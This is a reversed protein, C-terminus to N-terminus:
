QNLSRKYGLRNYTRISLFLIVLGAVVSGMDVYRQPTYYLDYDGDKNVYFGNLLSYVKYSKEGNLLWRADYNEAFVLMSPKKLGSLRLKYHTPSESLIDISAETKVQSLLEQINQNVNERSLAVKVIENKSVVVFANIINLEGQTKIIISNAGLEGIEHWRFASDRYEYISDEIQGFGTIKQTITNDDTTLTNTRGILSGGAYIEIFGGSNSELARLFLTGQSLKESSFLLENSGESIAYGGGYTFDQNDLLYKEHLFDRMWIFDSAERKWWGSADPDRKLEDSPFIFRDQPLKTFDFQSNPNSYVPVGSPLGVGPHEELFILANNKLDFESEAFESYIRDNGIVAISNQAIFFKGPNTNVEFINIPYNNVKRSVWKQRELQKSFYHYYALDDSGLKERREDPFPYVVYKIGSIDLLDGMYDAERLFNSTEYKGVVGVAFPRRGVLDNLEVVPNKPSSFGLPHRTPIWMVRGSEEFKAQVEGYTHGNRYAGLIGTMEGLYVPRLLFILYIFILILFKRNLKSFTFGILVSYSIALLVFFKTPDRFLSFGPITEFAFTYLFGLPPNTGKIFIISLLSVLIWFLKKRNVTLAPVFFALAPVILFFRNVPAVQGFINQYWHPQYFLIAHKLGAFSFGKLQSSSLYSASLGLDRVEIFALLWYFHMLLGVAGWVIFSVIIQKFNRSGFIFDYVLKALVLLLFLYIFRFDFYGLIGVLIGAKIRDISNGNFSKISVLYVLPLIAYALAIGIQGGDVLLIIYTNFIYFLSGALCGHKNIKFYKLLKYISFFALAVIFIIIILLILNFKIGLNSLFGVFINQPWAWLTNLKFEGLGSNGRESWARPIDLLDKAAELYYYPYDNAARM